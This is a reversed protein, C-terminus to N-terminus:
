QDMVLWVDEDKDEFETSPKNISYFKIPFHSITTVAITIYQKKVATKSTITITNDKTKIKM